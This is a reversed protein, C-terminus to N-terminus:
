RLTSLDTGTYAAIKPAEAPKNSVTKNNKATKLHKKKFEEWSLADKNGFPTFTVALWIDRLEDERRKMQAANYYYLGDNFDMDLMDTTSYTM